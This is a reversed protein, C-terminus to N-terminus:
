VLLGIKKIKDSNNRFSSCDNFCENCLSLRNQVRSVTCHWVFSGGTSMEAMWLKSIPKKKNINIDTFVHVIKSANQNGFCLILTFFFQYEIPKKTMLSQMSNLFLFNCTRSNLDSTQCDIRTNTWTKPRATM